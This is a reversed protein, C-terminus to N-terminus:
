INSTMRSSVAKRHAQASGALFVVTAITPIRWM